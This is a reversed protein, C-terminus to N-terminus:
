LEIGLEKCAADLHNASMPDGDRVLKLVSVLRAPIGGSKDAAHHMRDVQATLDKVQSELAQIKAEDEENSSAVPVEDAEELRGILNELDDVGIADEPYNEEEYTQLEELKENLLDVAVDRDESDVQIM